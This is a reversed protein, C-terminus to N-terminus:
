LIFSIYVLDSAISICFLSAIIVVVYVSVCVHFLWSRDLVVSTELSFLM